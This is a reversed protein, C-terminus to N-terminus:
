RRGVRALLANFSELQQLLEQDAPNEYSVIAPAGATEPRLMLAWGAFCVAAFLLQTEDVWASHLHPSLSDVLMEAAESLFVASFFSTSVYTNRHLGLPYRSLFVLISAVIVALTFVVSRNVIEIYFLGSEGHRGGNWFAVSMALSSLIAVGTAVYMVWRAATRIGPYDDLVLACMERVVYVSVVWNIPVAAVYLWFYVVSAQPFSALALFVVATSLLFALLAPQRRALHLRILRAAAVGAAVAELYEAGAFFGPYM